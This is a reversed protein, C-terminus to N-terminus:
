KPKKLLIEKAMIMPVSVYKKEMYALINELTERSSDDLRNMDDKFVNNIATEKITKIKEPVSRMAIEVKRIKIMEDFEMQAQKVFDKVKDIESSRAKLNEDSLKQLLSVSIHHVPHNEVIQPDLDQPVAIDVVLKKDTDTGLLAEYMEPTVIHGDTGTCAILVDFGDKYEGIEALPYAQGNLEKALSEAKSFTRNFVSFKTFGHKKLFRSLTTNTVGAGIILVRSDLPIALDKMRHYALSVVSVPNRSINTNTYVKKAVDITQKVLLRIFDGTLGNMNSSEYAKRVQTIIEREGVVMSDISCAVNFVHEIALDSSLVEAKKAFELIESDSLHPYLRSLIEEVSKTIIQDESYIWVEVRNCTSLFLMEEWDFAEKVALM